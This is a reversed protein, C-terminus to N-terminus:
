STIRQRLTEYNLGYKDALAAAYALGDAPRRTVTFTRRTPDDAAVEAVMSVCAPDVRALENLFTVYVATSNQKIIRKIIDTGILQADSVTTSSVGL